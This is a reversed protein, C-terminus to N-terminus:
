NEANKEIAALKKLKNNDKRYTSVRSEAQRQIFILFTIYMCFEWHRIIFELIPIYINPTIIM